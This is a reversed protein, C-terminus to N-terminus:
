SIGLHGGLAQDHFHRIVPIRRSVPVVTVTRKSSGPLSGKRILRVLGDSEVLLKFCGMKLNRSLPRTVTADEKQEQIWEGRNESALGWSRMETRPGEAAVPLMTPFGAGPGHRQFQEYVSRFSEAAGM